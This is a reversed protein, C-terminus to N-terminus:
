KFARIRYVTLGVLLCAASGLLFWLTYGGIGMATGAALIGPGFAPALIQPLVAAVNLVGLDKASEEPNPLVQSGLALDVAFYIGVGLGLTGQAVVVVAVSPAAAMGALGAAMIVGALLLFPRRKGFRDSLAGAIPSAIIMAIAAAINSILMTRAVGSEDLHLSNELFYPVYAAIGYYGFMALFRTAWMWAFDPSKRPNFVFSGAFDKISFTGAPATRRPRDNLRTAFWGTLGVAVIGPVIFRWPDAAILNVILTGGLIALPSTMGVMGTVKGRSAGPVQDALTANTAALGANVAFQTCGWAVALVVPSTTTGCVALAALAAIAGGLIWPRRRGYHSMTRDSLRGVLPSAVLAAFAGVSLIASLTSTAQDAPVIHKVKFSLAVMSPTFVALYLGFSSAFYGRAYRGLSLPTLSQPAEDIM